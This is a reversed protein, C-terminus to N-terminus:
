RYESLFKEQARKAENIETQWGLEDGVMKAKTAKILHHVVNKEIWVQWGGGVASGGQSRCYGEFLIIGPPVIIKATKTMDNWSPLVAQDIRTVEKSQLELSWYQGEKPADGGYQRYLTLNTGQPTTQWYTPGIFNSYNAGREGHRFRPKGEEYQAKPVLPGPEDLPTYAKLIRTGHKTTEGPSWFYTDSSTSKKAPLKVDSVKAQPSAEQKHLFGNLLLVASLSALPHNTCPPVKDNSTNQVMTHCYNMGSILAASIGKLYSRSSMTGSGDSDDSDDGSSPPEGGSGSRSSGGSGGSGGGSSSGHGTSTKVTTSTSQGNPQGSSAPNAFAALNMPARYAGRHYPRSSTQARGASAQRSHSGHFVSYRTYSREGRIKVSHVNGRVHPVYGQEIEPAILVGGYCLAIHNTTEEKLLAAPVWNCSNPMFQHPSSKLRNLEQNFATYKQRHFQIMQQRIDQYTPLPLASCIYNKLETSSRNYLWYRVHSEMNGRAVRQGCVQMLGDVVQSLVNQDKIRLADKVHPEIDSYSASVHYPLESRIREVASSVTFYDDAGPWAGVEHSLNNLMTSVQAQHHQKADRQIEYLVRDPVEVGKGEAQDKLSQLVARLAIGLFQLKSLERLRGFMPFHMSVENYNTTLDFAFRAEPSNPDDEHETDQLKGDPGPILPHSRIKMELDSLRFELRSDTQTQDYVLKDAQIWFRHVNSQRNGREAVPKLAEILHLPLGELLGEKCPRQNFPPNASVEAGVSFSKLLYDTEFMTHLLTTNQLKEPKYEFQQFPHFRENVSPPDLSFFMPYVESAELQMVTNVDEQSFLGVRGKSDDALVVLLEVSPANSDLNFVFGKLQAYEMPTGLTPRRLLWGESDRPSLPSTMLKVVDNWSWGKEHLLEEMARARAGASDELPFVHRLDNEYLQYRLESETVPRQNPNVEQLRLLFEGHFRNMKINLLVAESLPVPPAKWFPCFRCNHLISRLLRIVLDSVDKTALAKTLQLTHLLTGLCLRSVYLQMGPPLSLTAVICAHQICSVVTKTLAFKSAKTLNPNSQLQKLLWMSANVFCLAIEAPHNCGPVYDIYALAADWDNWKGENVQSAVAYEFKKHSRINLGEVRLEPWNTEFPPQLESAQPFLLTLGRDDTAPNSCMGLLDNSASANVFATMSFLVSKAKELMKFIADMVAKNVWSGHHSNWAVREFDALGTSYKQQHLKLTGRLFLLVVQDDPRVKELYAENAVLFRELAQMTKDESILPPNNSNKDTSATVLALLSNIDRVQWLTLIKSHLAKVQHEHEDQKEQFLAHLYSTTNETMSALGPVEVSNDLSSANELAQCCAEKAALTLKWKTEWDTNPKEALSNLVSAALMHVRLLERTDKTQQLLAAVLPMVLEPVGKHFLIQAVKVVPKINVKDGMCLVVTLCALATRTAELTGMEVFQLCTATWDEMDLSRLIPICPSCIPHPKAHGLRTFALQQPPCNKCFGKGCYCCTHQQKVFFSFKQKCKECKPQKSQASASEKMQTHPIITELHHQMEKKSVESEHASDSTNVSTFVAFLFRLDESSLSSVPVLPLRQGTALQPAHKSPHQAQIQVLRQQIQIVAGQLDPDEVITNSAQMVEQLPSSNLQRIKRKMPQSVVSNDSFVPSMEGCSISHSLEDLKVKLSSQIGLEPVDNARFSTKWAKFQKLFIESLRMGVTTYFSLFRVM